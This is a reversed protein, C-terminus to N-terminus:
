HSQLESTHEESRRKEADTLSGFGQSNIKDLIRDVEHRLNPKPALDVKLKAAGADKRKWRLWGGTSALAAVELEGSM